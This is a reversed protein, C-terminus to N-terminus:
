VGLIRANQKRRIEAEEAEDVKRMFPVCGREMYEPVCKACILANCPGCHFGLDHKEPDARHPVLVVSNCHKCTFSDCERMGRPAEPDTWVAYGGPRPV